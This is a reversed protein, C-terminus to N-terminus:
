PALRTPGAPRGDGDGGDPQRREHGEIVVLEGSAPLGIAM